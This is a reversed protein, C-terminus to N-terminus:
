RDKPYHLLEETKRKSFVHNNTFVNPIGGAYLRVNKYGFLGRASLVVEYVEKGKETKIYEGIEKDYLWKSPGQYGNVISCYPKDQHNQRAALMSQYIFDDSPLSYGFLIIHKTKELAVHMDRHIDTIFSDNNGKFSTQMITPTNTLETTAGCFSCQLVDFRGEKYWAESEEKSRPKHGFSLSELITPPFLNEPLDDWSDGLHMTLKGCNPCQRWSLSGHPFYFKGVRVLRSTVHESDNLRQVVTENFPYWVRPTLPKTGIQCVDIFIEVYHFLKLTQSTNGIYPPNNKNADYHAMFLLWLLMPEWNMSILAYSFLYFSRNKLDEKQKQLGEFLNLEIGFHCEVRFPEFTM